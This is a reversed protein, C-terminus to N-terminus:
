MAHTTTGAGTGGAAGTPGWSSVPGSGSSGPPSQWVSPYPYVAYPPYYPWWWPGYVWLPDYVPVYVMSPNAPEIRIIEQEVIVKQQETSKLNGAGSARKRLKQVTDMVDAQQALFADGVMQTWDLKQSMMSLVDPFPVLAKVSADWPQKGLATNLEDGKLNKNQNAWRDAVVVELPYTSAIFIQALLSDPYLAIPALIQDLQEQSFQGPGQRATRNPIRPM